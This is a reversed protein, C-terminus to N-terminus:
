DAHSFAGKRIRRQHRGCFFISLVLWLVQTIVSAAWVGWVRLDAPFTLIYSCLPNVVMVCLTAIRRPDKVEGMGRMIGILVIRFIQVATLSSVIFSSKVGDAIAAADTFFMGYYPRATTIYSLCLFGACILGCIEAIRSYRRFDDFNRAGFSRGTLAVVASQIGDGFAFSYNLLIMAVAYVATENPSLMSVIISSLLFGIRMALNEFIINGAKSGIARLAERNALIRERLMGKFSLFDVNRLIAIISIACGAVTGLVTAIADGAIELRPFGLHGEILLYNFLIDTLGMAINSVLTVKTRGIGRLAANLVISVTQFIMFGMIIRFFSVSLDLTEAQRNCLMMIPKAFVSLLVGLLLSLVITIKLITHFYTNGEKSDKKGNAQAVFITVTTGLAYFIAFFILKPQTTFSVASIAGKGLVSIMRTDITTIIVAVLSELVAPIAIELFEKARGTVQPRM